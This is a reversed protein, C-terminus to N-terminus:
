WILKLAFQLQRNFVTGTINGTGIKAQGIGAGIGVALLITASLRYSMM